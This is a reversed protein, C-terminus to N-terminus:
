PSWAGEVHTLRPAPREGRIEILRQYDARTVDRPIIIDDAPLQRELQPSLPTPQPM